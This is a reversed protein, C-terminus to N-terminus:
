AEFTNEQLNFLVAHEKHKKLAEEVESLVWVPISVMEDEDEFDEELGYDYDDAEM